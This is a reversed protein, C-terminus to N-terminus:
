KWNVTFWTLSDVVPLEPLHVEWNTQPPEPIPEHAAIAQERLVQWGKAAVHDVMPMTLNAELWDKLAKQTLVENSPPDIWVDHLAIVGGYKVKDFAMNLDTITGDYSHDGDIFVMDFIPMLCKVVDGSEGVHLYVNSLSRTNDLFLKAVDNDIVKTFYKYFPDVCDVRNASLAMQSASFGAQSGIELVFKQFALEQLKAAEADTISSCFRADNQGKTRPSNRFDTM